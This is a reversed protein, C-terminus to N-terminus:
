IRADQKDGKYEVTIDGKAIGEAASNFFNASGNKDDRYVTLIGTTVDLEGRYKPPEIHVLNNYPNYELSRVPTEMLKCIKKFEKQTMNNPVFREKIEEYPKLHNALIDKAEEKAKEMCMEIYEEDTMNYDTPCDVISSFRCLLGNPQRVVFAGM